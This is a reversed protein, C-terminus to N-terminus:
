HRSSAAKSQPIQVCQHAMPHQLYDPTSVQLLPTRDYMGRYTNPDLAKPKVKGAETLLDYTATKKVTRDRLAISPGNNVRFLEKPFANFRQIYRSM